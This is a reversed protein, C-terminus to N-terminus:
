LKDVTHSAKLTKSELRKSFIVVLRPAGIKEWASSESIVACTVGAQLAQRSWSRQNQFLSSSTSSSACPNKGGVDESLNIMTPLRGSTCVQVTLLRTAM